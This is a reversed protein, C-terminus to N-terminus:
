ASVVGDARFSVRQKYVEGIKCTCQKSRFKREKKKKKKWSVAPGILIFSFIIFMESVEHFSWFVSRIYRKKRLINLVYVYNLSSDTSLM